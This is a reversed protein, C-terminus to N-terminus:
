PGVNKPTRRNIIVTCDRCLAGSTAKFWIPRVISRVTVIIIIFHRSTRTMVSQARTNKDSARPQIPLMPIDEVEKMVWEGMGETREEEENMGKGKNVKQGEKQM